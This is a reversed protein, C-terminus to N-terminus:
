LNDIKESLEAYGADTVGQPAEETNEMARKMYFLEWGIFCNCLILLLILVMLIREKLVTKDM